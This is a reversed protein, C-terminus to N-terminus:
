HLAARLRLRFFLAAVAVALVVLYWYITRVKVDRAEFAVTTTTRCNEPRTAM